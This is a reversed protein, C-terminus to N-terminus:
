GMRSTAGAEALAAVLTTAQLLTPCVVAVPPAQRVAAEVAKAEDLTRGDMSRLARLFRVREFTPGLAEIWVEHEDM